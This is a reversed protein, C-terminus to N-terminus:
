AYNCVLVPRVIAVDKTVCVVAYFCQLSAYCVLITRDVIKHM